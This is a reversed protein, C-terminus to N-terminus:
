LYRHFESQMDPALFAGRLGAFHDLVGDFGGLVHRKQLHEVNQVFRQCRFAFFRDSEVVIAAFADAAGAPEHDVTDSMAGPGARRDALKM